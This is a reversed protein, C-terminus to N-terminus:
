NKYREIMLGLGEDINIMDYRGILSILKKISPQRRKHDGSREDEFDFKPEMKLQNMIKEALVAISIEEPNGLNYVDNYGNSMIARYAMEVHDTVYIFSRTNSGDGFVKLPYEGERLRTIFEPIVQGYKTGIMRPGYVNFIRFIMWPFNFTEAFLRVYFESMLKAAAYSDRAEGLRSYTLSTEKSPIEFPEGYVESTSAFVFSPCYGDSEKM